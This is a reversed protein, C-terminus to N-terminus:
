EAAAETPETAETAETAEVAKEMDSNTDQSAEEDSCTKGTEANKCSCSGEKCDKDCSDSCTGSKCDCGNESCCSKSSKEGDTSTCSTCFSSLGLFFFFGLVFKVLKKQIHM